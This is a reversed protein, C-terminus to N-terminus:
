STIEDIFQMAISYFYRLINKWILKMAQAVDFLHM